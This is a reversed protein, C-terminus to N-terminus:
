SGSNENNFCNNLTIYEIHEKFGIGWIFFSKNIKNRIDADIEFNPNINDLDIPIVFVKSVINKNKKLSAIHRTFGEAFDGTTGNKIPIPLYLTTDKLIGGPFKYLDLTVNQRMLKLLIQIGSEIDLRELGALNLPIYYNPSNLSIHDIFKGHCNIMDSRWVLKMWAPLFFDFFNFLLSNEKLNDNDKLGVLLEEVQESLASIESNESRLFYEKIRQLSLVTQLWLLSKDWPWPEQATLKFFIADKEQTFHRAVKDHKSNWEINMVTLSTGQPDARCIEDILYEDNLAHGILWFPHERLNVRFLDMFAEDTKSTNNDDSEKERGILEKIENNLLMFRNVANILKNPNKEYEDFGESLERACGHIKFVIVKHQLSAEEGHHLFTSYYNKNWPTEPNEVNETKFELGIQKLGKELFCDWNTTFISSLSEEKAFRAIVRYRPKDKSVDIEFNSQGKLDLGGYLNMKYLLHAKARLFNNSINSFDCNEICNELNEVIIKAAEYIWTNNNKQLQEVASKLETKKELPLEINELVNGFSQQLENTKPAMNQSLGAGYLITPQETKLEQVLRRGIEFSPPM